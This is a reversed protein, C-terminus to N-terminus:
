LGGGMFSERSENSFPKMGEKERAKAEFIINFEKSLNSNIFDTISKYAGFNIRIEKLIELSISTLHRPDTVQIWSDKKIFICESSLLLYKDTKLGTIIEM